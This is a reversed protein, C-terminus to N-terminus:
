LPTPSHLRIESGMEFGGGGVTRGVGPSVWAWQPEASGPADAALPVEAAATLM